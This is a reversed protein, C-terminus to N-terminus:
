HTKKDFTSVESENYLKDLLNMKKKIFLTRNGIKSNDM